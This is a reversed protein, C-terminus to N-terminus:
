WKKNYFWYFWYISISPEREMHICTSYLSLTTELTIAITIDRANLLYIFIFIFKL